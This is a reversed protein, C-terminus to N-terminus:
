TGDNFYYGSGDTSYTTGSPSKIALECIEGGGSQGWNMLIPYYKGSTLTVIYITNNTVNSTSNLAFSYNVMKNANSGTTTPNTATRTSASTPATASSKLNAITQGDSGIWLISIEDNAYNSTAMRFSWSGSENPKFYGYFTVITNDIYNNTFTSINSSTINTTTDSAVEAKRTNSDSFATIGNNYYATNSYVGFFYDPNTSYDNGSYGKYYLGSTYKTKNTIGLGTSASFTNLSSFAM